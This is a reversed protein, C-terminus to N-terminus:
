PSIFKIKFQAFVLNDHHVWVYNKHIQKASLIAKTEHHTSAALPHLPTAVLGAIDLCTVDHLVQHRRDSPTM